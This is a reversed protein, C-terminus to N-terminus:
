NFEIERVQLNSYSFEVQSSQNRSIMILFVSVIDRDNGDEGQGYEVRHHLRRRSVNRGFDANFLCRSEFSMDLSKKLTNMSGLERSELRYTRRKSKPGEPLRYSEYM